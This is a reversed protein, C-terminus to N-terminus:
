QPLGNLIQLVSGFSNSVSQLAEPMPNDEDYEEKLYLALDSLSARLQKGEELSLNIQYFTSASLHM